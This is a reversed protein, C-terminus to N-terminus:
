DRIKLDKIDDRGIAESCKFKRYGENILKIIKLNMQVKDSNPKTPNLDRTITRGSRKQVTSSM